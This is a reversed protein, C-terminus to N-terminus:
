STDAATVDMNFYTPGRITTGPHDCPNDYGGGYANAFQVLALGEGWGYCDYRSDFGWINNASASQSTLMLIALFATIGLVALREANYM